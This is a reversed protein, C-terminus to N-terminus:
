ASKDPDAAVKLGVTRAPMQARWEALQATVFEVPGELDLKFDGYALTAKTNTVVLRELVVFIQALARTSDLALNTKPETNAPRRYANARIVSARRPPARPLLM